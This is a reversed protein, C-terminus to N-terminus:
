SGTGSLPVFEAGAADGSNLYVGGSRAGTATPTFTVQLDKIENPEIVTFSASSLAFDGVVQIASLQVSAFGTNTVMVTQPSSTQGVAVSGFALTGPHLSLNQKIRGFPMDRVRSSRDADERRVTELTVYGAMKPDNLDITM